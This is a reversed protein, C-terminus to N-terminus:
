SQCDRCEEGLASFFYSKFKEYPPLPTLTSSVGGRRSERDYLSHLM